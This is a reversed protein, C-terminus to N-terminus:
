NFFGTKKWNDMWKRVLTSDPHPATRLAPCYAETKITSFSCRIPPNLDDHDYKEEFFALLKITPNRIPDPDSNRLSELWERRSVRKFRLGAAEFHNLIDLWPVPTPQIIHWCINENANIHDPMSTLERIVRAATDVPLWTPSEDLIPLTSTIQASKFMLSIAESENWVGNRSDGVLQGIRLVHARLGSNNSAIECLKEVVWKSRAYGMQQAFRPDDTIKEEMAGPGPWAIVASVSSCFYFQVPESHLVELGLKMLNVAGSIHPMFSAIGLNFNVPWASHVILTVKSRLEEYIAKSLGLNEESFDASLCSINGRRSEFEDGFGRTVMSKTVREEAAKHSIARVLCYIHASEQELLYENLLHAGLSGTVGSLLVCKKNYFSANGNRQRVQSLKARHQEVIRLMIDVQSVSPVAQPLDSDGLTLNFLSRSIQNISPNEFVFNSSLKHTGLEINRQIANRLRTAQLSDLGFTFLDTDGTLGEGRGGLTESIIKLVLAEGEEPTAIRAKPHGTNLDGGELRLYLDNIVQEFAAYTRARIPSGKDARPIQTGYPLFVIADASLQSHSPADSNAMILAPAILTQLEKHTKDKGQESLVILAGVQAKGTGFIIADSIYPSTGRLCLEMPVPNTKEGNIMVLTDDLRGCFKFAFDLTPHMTYLDKTRYSGDPQNSTVMTPYGTLVVLEYKGDGQDEFRFFKQLHKPPRTYNWEKDHEYDRASTGIQGTETSGMQGVLKVGAAVLKDGTEDSLASGAFMVVKMKRLIGIGQESEAIFTLILPVAYVAEADCDPSTLLSIINDVTLPILGSPFLYFPKNAHLARYLNSHGHNHYLPLTTFSSYSLHQSYNRVGARHNIHVPKPYGTSGSSHIIVFPQEGEQSFELPYQWTFNWNNRRATPGYLEGSPQAIVRPVKSDNPFNDLASDVVNMLPASTIVSEARTQYLLHVIAAPSNNPSILLICYGLRSLALENVVYDFNTQSLFGVVLTSSSDGKTRGVLLGSDVYHKALISAAVDLEKYTYKTYKLEKDPIGLIVDDPHNKVQEHVLHNVSHYVAM